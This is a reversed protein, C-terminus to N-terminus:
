YGLGSNKQMPVVEAGEWRRQNLYVMPAPIFAGADKQWDSTTKMAEVHAVVQDALPEFNEKVWVEACKGRSQKRGGKPWTAWFRVFGPPDVATTARDTTTTTITITPAANKQLQECNRAISLLGEPPTPYKAKSRTREYWRAIFLYPKGDVEYRRILDAGELEALLHACRREIPKLPYCKSAVIQPRADFLGHDDANVLLRVWLDRADPSVSMIRESSCYAEKIWRNPM